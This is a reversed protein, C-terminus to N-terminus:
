LQIWSSPVLDNTIIYDNNIWRKPTIIIKEPNTNLWAGWWAFTSNPIIAHKCISMLYLHGEGFKGAYKEDVFFVSANININKKCWDVDDSFIYVCEITQNKKRMQETLMLFAKQYYEIPDFTNYLDNGVYDGRRVHLAIAIQKQIVQSLVETHQPHKVSFLFDDRIIKEYESFYKYSQWYGCLVSNGPLSLIAPDFNHEKEVGSINAFRRLRTVVKKYILYIFTLLKLNNLFFINKKYFIKGKIQFVNLAYEREKQKAYWSCDLCLSTKNKISLVRGLAYQFM